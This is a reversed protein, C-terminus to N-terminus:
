HLTPGRPALFLQAAVADAFERFERFERATPDTADNTRLPRAPETNALSISRGVTAALWFMKIKARTPGYDVFWDKFITRAM